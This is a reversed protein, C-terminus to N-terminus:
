SFHHFISLFAVDEVDGIWCALPNYVMKKVSGNASPESSVRQELQPLAGGLFLHQQVASDLPHAVCCQIQIHPVYPFMGISDVHHRHHRAIHKSETELENGALINCALAQTCHM